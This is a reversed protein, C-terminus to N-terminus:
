RNFIRDTGVLPHTVRGSMQRSPADGARLLQMSRKASPVIAIGYHQTRALIDLIEAYAEVCHTRTDTTFPVSIEVMLPTGLKYPASYV